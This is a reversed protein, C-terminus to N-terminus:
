SKLWAQLELRKWVPVTLVGSHGLYPDEETGGWGEASLAGSGEVM